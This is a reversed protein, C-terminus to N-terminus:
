QDTWNPTAAKPVPPPRGIRGPRSAKAQSGRASRALTPPHHGLSCSCKAVLPHAVLPHLAAAGTALTM